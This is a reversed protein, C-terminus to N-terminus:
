TPKKDASLTRVFLGVAIVLYSPLTGLLGMHTFLLAETVGRMIEANTLQVNSVSLVAFASVLSTVTGLLGFLLPMPVFVLYAAIVAPRRVKIVVVVAGIFVALESLLGLLGFLGLCKIFWVFYPDEHHVSPALSQASAVTVAACVPLSVLLTLGFKMLRM